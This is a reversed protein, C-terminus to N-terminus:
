EKPDLYKEQYAALVKKAIPCATSSGWLDDTEGEVMVVLAIKPENAPAFGMFWPATLEVGKLFIQGTGTKAAISLGPPRSLKATGISACKTMGRVLTEYDENPIGIPDAGIHKGEPNSGYIFTPITRTENRAFSAMFCAMHIPNTLLYVQGISMNVTDGTRWSEGLRDMKWDPDPILMRRGEFVKGLGLPRDM